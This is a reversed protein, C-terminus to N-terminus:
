RAIAAYRLVLSFQRGSGGMTTVAHESQKGTMFAVGTNNVPPVCVSSELDVRDPFVLYGGQRPSWERNLFVVVRIEETAEDTHPGIFDTRSYRHVFVDVQSLPGLGFTRQLVPEMANLPAAKVIRVLAATAEGYQYFAGIRKVWADDQELCCLLAECASPPFVPRVLLLQAGTQLSLM